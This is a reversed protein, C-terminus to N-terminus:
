NSLSGEFITYDAVVKHLRAETDFDTFAGEFIAKGVFLAELEGAIRIAEIASKAWITFQFRGEDFTTAGSEAVPASRTTVRQFTIYPPKTEPPALLPYIQKISFTSSPFFGGIDCEIKM